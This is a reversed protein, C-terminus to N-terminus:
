AKEEKSLLYERADDPVDDLNESGTDIDLPQKKFLIDYMVPIIFLTMLTAYLLGGAIVLAMGRGMQSGMDDGFILSAEALITTLATMLIPRMRTVGTAILADHRSLGGKRLQNVYDVYVIGNNVVTGTLVVFGMLAIMSISENAFFLALFGGTFALPITFLVIFPSLLSQFQAVMVFYIFAIGMLIILSMQKVMTNVTETEGGIEVSYGDPCEYSSILPEIKRSLINNSYGDEVAATVTIYRTQNERSISTFGDETELTAFDSLHKTVTEKEGDENEETVEFETDMLNEVTLEDLDNVVSVDMDEGDITVTVATSSTTLKGALTQYIGAVTLGKSMAYDKNIYLHLVSDAEEQGNSIDTYGEVSDVLEMVDESISLLTDADSGYISISLGSGLMSTLEEMGTSVSADLSLEDAISELENCIEKVVGAGANEDETTVMYTFTSYGTNSSAVLSTSAGMMIGVSDVGEIDCAKAIFEDAKAYAEDRTIADEDFTITGQIQNTTINPIMVVGMRFVLWISVALLGISVGLPVVKVRLCFDLIKAYFNQIKDFWPHDKPKTNRLLTSSAAPVVTMAVLLSALLCYIITLSMPLMLERVTGTTYVMPFFVCVSTLTSAIVAGAVQRTGQVAARPASVGRNRLRYINEIVVISNDVLMGVGLAMGSLSMMNLSIGTFYMAVFATLVSLPISIAVVVTPMFDKLFIALIFIALAAGIAMNQVVSSVILDIYDGQNMMIMIDLGEYKEELDDIAETLSKSVENTGSTSAKFISLIIAKEGNLSAYSDESNDIITIDAVDSLKVDGVDDITCLVLDELEEVSDFNDGIKLLWSDDNADDIYGAPMEFNQAYILSSLTSLTLLEDANASKLAEEKSSEFQEVGEYYSDWGSEIQDKASDLTSKSTELQSEASEIAAEGQAIQAQANGYGASAEMKAKEIDTYSVGLSKLQSTYKSIIGQTVQIELTLADKEAQYSSLTENASTLQADISAVAAPIQTDAAIKLLAAINGSETQMKAYEEAMAETDPTAQAALEQYAAAATSYNTVATVLDTTDIGTQSLAGIVYEINTYTTDPYTEFIVPVQTTTNVKLSRGDLLNTNIYAAIGNLTSKGTEATKIGSEYQSIASNLVSLQAQQNTLQTQYSALQDLAESATALTSYTSSAQSELDEKSQSLKDKSEKLENEGKRLEAQGDALEKESDELQKKADDLEKEADALADEAVKLIKANLADVKEQNLEVQVTKDVLGISSISAVGDVRELAPTLTDRTFTSLENIDKGEYGVAIYMTAMMDMSIEMISPTGCEDPLSAEVTDLASSVKVLVSDMDTGDEFELEVMSYNEYSFSYVNKVGSITGLGSEMPESITSEVKEPSAGPYTTIVLLYPLSMDPLLDLQMRTMSVVGLMLIMLVAVLVTFPKKVSFKAM